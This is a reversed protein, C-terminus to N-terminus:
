KVEMWDEALMDSQSALWGMLIEGTATKMTFCPLVTAHGGQRQAYEANPQSWFNEAPVVRPGDIGSLAIWMGKGNWGRRAVRSGRKLLMLADGFNMANIDHYAEEFVAKPSWSMYGFFARTNPASDPYEVLYGEDAGNENAPTQWGRFANYEGLTMPHANVIKTGIYQLM